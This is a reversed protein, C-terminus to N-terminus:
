SASTTSLSDSIPLFPWLAYYPQCFLLLYDSSFFEGIIGQLLCLFSTHKIYNTQKWMSMITQKQAINTSIM